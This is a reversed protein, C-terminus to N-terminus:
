EDISWQNKQRVILIEDDSFEMWGFDYVYHYMKGKSNINFHTLYKFQFKKRVLESRLITKKRAKPGM